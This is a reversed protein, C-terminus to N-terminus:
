IGLYEFQRVFSVKGKNPSRVLRNKKISVHRNRVRYISRSEGNVLRLGANPNNFLYVFLAASFDWM